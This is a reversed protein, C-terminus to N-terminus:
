RWLMRKVKVANRSPQLSSLDTWQIITFPLEILIKRRRRPNVNRPITTSIVKQQASKNTHYGAECLFWAIAMSSQIVMLMNYQRFCLALAESRM